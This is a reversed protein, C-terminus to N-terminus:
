FGFLYEELETADRIGRKKLMMSAVEDEVLLAYIESPNNINYFNKVFEILMAFNDKRMSYRKHEKYEDWDIKIM